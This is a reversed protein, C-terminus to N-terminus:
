AAAGHARRRRTLWVIAGASAGAVPLGIPYAVDPTQVPPSENPGWNPDSDSGPGETLTQVRGDATGHADIEVTALHRDGPREDAALALRGHPGDGWGGSAVQASTDFVVADGGPAPSPDRADATCRQQAAHGHENRQRFVPEQDTGEETMSYLQTTGCSRDSQFIIREVGRVLAFAPKADNTPEGGRGAASMDTLVHTSRNYSFIQTHMGVVRVFVIHDPNTPDFVPESDIFGTPSSFVPTAGSPDSVEETFLQSPQASSDRAFVITGDGRSSWSPDTDTADSDSSVLKPAVPSLQQASSIPVTFLQFNPGNRTSAFVVETGDPSVSPNEDRRATCTLQSPDEHGPLLVFLEDSQYRASCYSIDAPRNSEFVVPGETPRPSALAAVPTLVVVALAGLAILGAGARARRCRWTDKAGGTTM